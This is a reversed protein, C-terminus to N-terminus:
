EEIEAIMGTEFARALEASLDFAGAAAREAMEGLTEGALLASVLAAEGPEAIRVAVEAGPRSVIATEARAPDVAPAGRGTSAEWLSVAPHRSAVLRLAPHPRLRAGEARGPALAALRAGSLPEAEAEHFAELWARELRAVDGIWPLGGAPPFAEIWDAFAEGYLLMVPSRPPFARVHLAAAADFFAEGTLARVAPYAAGLAAVLGAVVNNRHVAFRAGGPARAAPDLLAAAMAAETEAPSRM